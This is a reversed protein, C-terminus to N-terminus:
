ERGYKSETPMQGDIGRHASGNHHTWYYGFTDLILAVQKKTRQPGKCLLWDLSYPHTISNENAVVQRMKIYTTTKLLNRIFVM